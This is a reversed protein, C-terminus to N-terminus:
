PHERASSPIRELIGLIVKETDNGHKTLWGHLESSGM